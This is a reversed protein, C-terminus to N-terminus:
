GRKAKRICRTNGLNDLNKVGKASELAQLQYHLAKQFRESPRVGQKQLFSDPAINYVAAIATLAMSANYKSGTENYLTFSKTLYDIALSYNKLESYVTGIDLYNNAIGKKLGLSKNLELAKLNYEIAKAYNKVKLYMSGVNNCLLAVQVVKGLEENM